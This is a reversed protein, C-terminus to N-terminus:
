VVFGSEDSDETLATSHPPRSIPKRENLDRQIQRITSSQVWARPPTACREIAEGVVRVPQVRSSILENTNRKTGRVDVRRGNLHVIAHAGELESAWPGISEADWMVTRAGAVQQGDTRSLIVVEDGRAVLRAALARGLFGSGGPIVIRSM